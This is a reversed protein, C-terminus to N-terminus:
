QEIEETLMLLSEQGEPVNPKIVAEVGMKACSEEFAKIFNNDYTSNEDHLCILGVKMPAAAEEEGGENGSAPENSEGGGGGCSALLSLALATIIWSLRLM